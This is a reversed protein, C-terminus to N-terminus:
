ARCGVPSARVVAVGSLAARGCTRLALGSLRSEVGGGPGCRRRPTGAAAAMAPGVSSDDGGYDQALVSGIPTAVRLNEAVDAVQSECKACREVHRAISRSSDMDLGGSVYQELQDLEPCIAQVM